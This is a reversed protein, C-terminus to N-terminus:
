FRLGLLAPHGLLRLEQGIDHNVHCVLVPLLVTSHQCGVGSRLLCDKLNKHEVRAIQINVHYRQHRLISILSVTQTLVQGLCQGVQLRLEHAEGATAYHMATAIAEPIGVAPLGGDTRLLLATAQLVCPAIVLRHSQAIELIELETLIHAHLGERDQRTAHTALTGIASPHHSSLGLIHNRHILHIFPDVLSDVEDLPGIAIRGGIFPRLHTGLGTM